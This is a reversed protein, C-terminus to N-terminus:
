NTIYYEIDIMKIHIIAFAVMRMHNRQMVCSALIM